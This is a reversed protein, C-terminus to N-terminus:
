SPVKSRNTLNNRKWVQDLHLAFRITAKQLPINRRIFSLIYAKLSSEHTNEGDPIKRFCSAKLKNGVAKAFDFITFVFAEMLPHGVLARNSNRNSEDYIFCVLLGPNLINPVDLLLLDIKTINREHCVPSGEDDVTGLPNHDALKVPRGTNKEIVVLTFCM